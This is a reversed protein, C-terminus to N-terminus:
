FFVLAQYGGPLQRPARGPGGGDGSAEGQRGRAGAGHGRLGVGVAAYQPVQTGARATGARDSALSRCVRDM